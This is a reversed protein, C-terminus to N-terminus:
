LHQQLQNLYYSMKDRVLAASVTKLLLVNFNRFIYIVLLHSNVCPIFKNVNQREQYVIDQKCFQQNYRELM